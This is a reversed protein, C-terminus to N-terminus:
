WGLGLASALTILPGYLLVLPGALLVEATNPMLDMLSMPEPM